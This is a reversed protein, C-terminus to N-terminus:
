RQVIGGVVINGNPQVVVAVAEDRGGFDTTVVDQIGGHSVDLSGDATHRAVGPNTIPSSVGGNTLKGAAM